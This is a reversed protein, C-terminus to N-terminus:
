LLEENIIDTLSETDLVGSFTRLVEGDAGIFVTTPMALANLQQFLEGNPDNGIDYTVGSREILAIADSPRDRQAVGLFTVEDGLEEHVAQFDPLEAVCSPCWSAFFNVVVPTGEFEALAAQDILQLEAADEGTATGVSETSACAAALLLFAVGLILLRLSRMAGKWTPQFMSGASM